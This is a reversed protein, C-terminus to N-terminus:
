RGKAVLRKPSTQAVMTGARPLWVNQLLRRSRPVLGGSPMGLLWRPTPHCAELFHSERSTWISSILRGSLQFGSARPTIVCSLKAIRDTEDVAVREASRLVGHHQFFSSRWFKAESSYEVSRRYSQPNIETGKRGAHARIARPFGPRQSGTVTSAAM